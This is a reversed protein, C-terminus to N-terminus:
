SEGRVYFFSGRVEVALKMPHMNYARYGEVSHPGPQMFATSTIKVSKWDREAM